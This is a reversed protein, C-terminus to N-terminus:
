RLFSDKGTSCHAYLAFSGFTLSGAGGARIRAGTHLCLGLHATAVSATSANALDHSLTLKGGGDRM